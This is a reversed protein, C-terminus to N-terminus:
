YTSSLGIGTYYYKLIRQYDWGYNAALNVSGNASMGVMHNGAAELESTSMTAHKGYPDLVSQCWPYSTGGWREQYSRTRGDTWSSYPTLAVDNGYTVINGRTAEAATKINPHSIEWDYGGYVQSGSDNRIKFGMPLYKTAYKVYWYGYSRYMETMVKTHEIPGTGALEGDGWVYHELPLTNIVWIQTITSGTNGNYIDPGRYYNVKIKGRYRDIVGHWDSAVYDSRNVDFVLDTNNGDAADFNVNSNVITSSISNYIELNGNDAYKVKTSTGGPIQAILTGNKDKINYTKNASIKFPKSNISSASYYWLGVSIDPGLASTVLYEKETESITYFHDGTTLNVFRYVPLSNGIQTQYAYFAINEYIYGWDPNAIIASKESEHITYFHDGNKSNTFRYVPYSDNVQSNHAYFGIGEYLYGYQPNQLLSNKEKTNITYFHDGTNPNIFRYVPVASLNNKESENITYFHDGNSTNVFRYVPLSENIQSALSYFGVGEYVYGWQPNNLVIAKENESITYFHDGNKSNIFRYVPVSNGIKSQFAYFAITEYVYGSQSNNILTDKENESITYFHDGTTSNYFRYVPLSDTAQNAFAYFVRDEYIYGVSSAHGYFATNEFQYGGSAAFVEKAFLLSVFIALILIIKTNIKRM